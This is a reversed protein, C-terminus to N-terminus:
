YNFFRVDFLIEKDVNIFEKDWELIDENSSSNNEDPSLPDDKHNEAYEIVKELIKSSINPLPISDDNDTDGIDEM